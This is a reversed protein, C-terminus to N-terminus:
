CLVWPNMKRQMPHPSFTLMCKKHVGVGVCSKTTQREVLWSWIENCVSLSGSEDALCSILCYDKSPIIGSCKAEILDHSGYKVDYSTSHFTVRKLNASPCSMFDM